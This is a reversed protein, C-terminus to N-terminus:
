RQKWITALTSRLYTSGHMPGSKVKHWSMELRLHDGMEEELQPLDFLVSGVGIEPDLIAPAGYDGEPLAPCNAYYGDDTAALSMLLIGGPGLIRAVEARYRARASALVQHKYVFIDTVLDYSNAEGPLGQQLDRVEFSVDIDDDLQALRETAREIARASSDFGVVRAGQLGLHISNRGTGCGVDLAATPRASAAVHPWVDLGWVLVGSPDDRFSSPIGSREYERDWRNM